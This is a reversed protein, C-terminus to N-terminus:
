RNLLDLPETLVVSAGGARLEAPGRIGWGAGLPIMGANIATHMDVDSDGLLACAAPAVGMAGALELAAAPDPKIPEGDRQGRVAVFRSLGFLREVVDRTADDPKNSLVARPINRAALADLLPVSQPYPKASAGGRELLVPRYEALVEDRLHQQDPPLAREILKHIGDGIFRRYADRDHTPLGRGALVGNMAAVIGDLTDALTGDLDFIVAQFPLREGM